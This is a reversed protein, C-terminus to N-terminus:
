AREENIGFGLYHQIPDAGEKKVDAHLELYVDPDFDNPIEIQKM